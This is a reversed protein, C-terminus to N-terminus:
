SQTVRSAGSTLRWRVLLDAVNPMAVACNAHFSACADADAGDTIGRIELFGLGNFSAARAGGAGEWAVCLGGTLRRLEAARAGDVIDEDGSAVPVFHVGFPLGGGNAAFRLEDILKPDGPHSPSNSQVFRLRYDHEVTNTAVVVDGFKCEPTLSGAAGVCLLVGLEDIRDILYQSQVGLQVKGHGGVAAIMALSPIAFCKVSGIAESRTPHGRRRLGAMLPELENTQPVVILVKKM